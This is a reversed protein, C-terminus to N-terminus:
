FTKNLVCCSHKFYALFNVNLVNSIKVSVSHIVILLFLLFFAIDEFVEDFTVDIERGRVFVVQETVVVVRTLLASCGSPGVPHEPFTPRLCGVVRPCFVGGRAAQHVVAPRLEFLAVM